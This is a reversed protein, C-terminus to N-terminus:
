ELFEPNFKDYQERKTKENLLDYFGFTSAEGYIDIKRNYKNKLAYFACIKFGASHESILEPANYHLEVMRQNVDFSAAVTSTGSEADIYSIFIKDILTDLFKAFGEVDSVDLQNFNINGVSKLGSVRSASNAFFDKISKENVFVRVKFHEITKRCKIKLGSYKKNFQESLKEYKKISSDLNPQSMACARDLGAGIKIIQAFDKKFHNIDSPNFENLISNNAM